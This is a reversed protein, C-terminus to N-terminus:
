LAVPICYSKVFDEQTTPWHLVSLAPARELTHPLFTIEVGKFFVANLADQFGVTANM